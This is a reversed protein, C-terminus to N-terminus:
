YFFLSSIFSIYRVKDKDYISVGKELLCQVVELHGNESAVLFASRGTQKHISLLCILLLNM